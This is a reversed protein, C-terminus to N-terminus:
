GIQGGHIRAVVDRARELDTGTEDRVVRVAEIGRGLALLERVRAIVERPVRLDPDVEAADPALLTYGGTVTSADADADGPSGAVRPAREASGEELGGRPLRSTLYVGAGLVAVAALLALVMLLLSM